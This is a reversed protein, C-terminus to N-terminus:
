ISIRENKRIPTKLNMFLQFDKMIETKNKNLDLMTTHDLEFALKNFIKLKSSLFLNKTKTYVYLLDILESEEYLVFFVAFYDEFNIARIDEFKNFDKVELESIFKDKLLAKYAHSKDYILIQKKM